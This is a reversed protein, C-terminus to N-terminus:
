FRIKIPKLRPLISFLVSYLILFLHTVIRLNFDSFLDALSKRLNKNTFLIQLLNDGTPPLLFDSQWNHFSDRIVFRYFKFNKVELAKIM